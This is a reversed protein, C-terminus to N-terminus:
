KSLSDFDALIEASHKSPNVKDYYRVVEGGPAILYSIRKTFVGDANYATIVEKSEDSLLTFPLHYKDMFKRHSEPSDASIGFVQINRKDFASIQDRITCAETTCGPTDDM